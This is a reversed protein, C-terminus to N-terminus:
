DIQHVEFIPVVEVIPGVGKVHLPLHEHIFEKFNDQEYYYDHTSCSDEDQLEGPIKKRKIKVACKLISNQSTYLLSVLFCIYEGLKVNREKSKITITQCFM